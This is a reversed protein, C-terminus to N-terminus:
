QWSSFPAVCGSPPSSPDIVLMTLAPIAALSRAMSLGVAKSAGPVFTGSQPQLAWNTGKRGFARLRWSSRQCLGLEYRRGCQRWGHRSLPPSSDAAMVQHHEMEPIRKKMANTLYWPDTWNSMRLGIGGENFVGVKYRPEFAMAYLVEKAGLSHGICGIRARDVQPLTELYDVCRSADFTMKGLGTWGPRGQALAEVQAQPGAGKMIFCEPSLTIYGRRVLQLALAMEPRKGLGVPERLTENTTPHFVVIAPRKEGEKLDKPLLLYARIRDDGESAFNVLQRVHDPEVERTEVKANLTKAKTPAEGLRELWATRFIREQKEWAEKTTIQQGDPARLLPKWGLDPTALHEFPKPDSRALRHHWGDWGFLTRM